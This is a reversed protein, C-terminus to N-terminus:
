PVLIEGPAAPAAFDLPVNNKISLDSENGADDVAAVGINYVSDVDPLLKQMDVSVFGAVATNGVDFSESDYSVATPSEQVYLKNTVVDESDSPAFKIVFGKVKSM